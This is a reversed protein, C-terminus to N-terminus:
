EQKLVPLVNAEQSRANSNTRKEKGGVSQMKTLLLFIMLM